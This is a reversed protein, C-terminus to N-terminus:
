SCGLFRIMICNRCDSTASADRRSYRTTTMVLSLSGRMSIRRRILLRLTSAKTSESSWGPSGLTASSASDPIGNAHKPRVLGPKGCCQASM